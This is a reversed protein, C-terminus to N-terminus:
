QRRREELKELLERGEETILWGKEWYIGGARELKDVFVSPQIPRDSPDRGAMLVDRGRLLTDVSAMTRRESLYHLVEIFTDYYEPSIELLELLRNHPSMREVLERGVENTEYAIQEVLDDIEDETLDNKQEDVVVEGHVDLEFVDIGGGQLLFQLLFYPSQTTAPFEPCSAIYEEVEPLIRRECCFKLTKYHIERYLPNRTVVMRLHEVLEEFSKGELNVQAPRTTVEVGPPIENEQEVMSDPTQYHQGEEQSGSQTGGVSIPIRNDNDM